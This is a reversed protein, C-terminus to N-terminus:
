KGTPVSVFIEFDNGFRGKISTLSERPNQLEVAREDRETSRKAKLILTDADYDKLDVPKEKKIAKKLDDVDRVGELSVKTWDTVQPRELKFWIYQTATTSSTSSLETM